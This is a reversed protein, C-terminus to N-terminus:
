FSVWLLKLRELAPVADQGDKYGKLHKVCLLLCQWHGPENGPGQWQPARWSEKWDAEGPGLTGEPM